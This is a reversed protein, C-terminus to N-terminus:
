LARRFTLNYRLAGALPHTGEPMPDVGHFFLRSPGGWIVVDGGDLIMRQPKGKRVPGGFLFTAPLGLSVSVIPQTMDGENLDQHLGMRAGPTYRNVLCSDPAFDAYGAAAAARVALAAFVPPMPPWPRGTEPDTTAYRYGNRDAVWGADGCNTMAVSMRHGGPVTMHRFPAAAAVAEVGQVLAAQEDRAFGRLRMAGPGLPQVAPEDAAFLDAIAASRNM